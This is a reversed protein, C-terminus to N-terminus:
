KYKSLESNLRNISANLAKEASVGSRIDSFANELTQQYEYYGVMSPRPVPNVGAEDIATRVNNWPKKQYKENDLIWQNVPVQASLATRVKSFWAKGGAETTMWHVFKKSAEQQDSCASVGLHWGSTPTVIKGGKFYPHRSIGWEFGYDKASLRGVNWPGALMMALQGTRFMEWVRVTTVPSAKYKNFMDGYFQMGSIWEESNVIGDVTLGDNGISKGGKSLFLPQLQYYQTTQEWNFGWIDVAGDGNKDKTLKVALDRVEEWTLRDDPGPPTLGADKFITANYYINQTSTHIPSSLFKGQYTGIDLSAKYFNDKEQKNFVDDLPILWGKLGYSATFPANVIIVDPDRQCTGVRVQIQEYVGNIPFQELKVEIDPYAKNFEEIFGSDKVKWTQSLLWTIEVSYINASLMTILFFLIGVRKLYIKM